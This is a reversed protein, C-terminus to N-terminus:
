EFADPPHIQRGAPQPHWEACGSSFFPYLTAKGAAEQKLSAHIRAHACALPPFSSSFCLPFFIM